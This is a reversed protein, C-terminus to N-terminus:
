EELFHRAGSYPNKLKLIREKAIKASESIGYTKNTLFSEIIALAEKKGTTGLAFLTEHIVIPIEEKQLAKKMEEITQLTGIEGLVFAAEHRVIRCIDTQLCKSISQIAKENGIRMLQFLIQIRRNQDSLKYNFLEKSYKEQNKKVSQEFEEIQNIRQISIKASCGIEFKSNKSFQELFEIDEKTGITGLSMLCEHKVFTSSDNKLIDKLIPITRKSVMEGLAFVAEHRVLECSDNKTIKFLIDLAKDESFNMIEFIDAIKKYSPTKQNNTSQELEVLNM